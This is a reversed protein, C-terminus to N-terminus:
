IIGSVNFQRQTTLDNFKFCKFIRIIIRKFADNM